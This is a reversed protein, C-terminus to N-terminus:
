NTTFVLQTKPQAARRGQFSFCCCELFSFFFWRQFSYLYCFFSRCNSQNMQKHCQLWETLLQQNTLTNLWSSSMFLSIGVCWLMEFVDQPRFTIELSRYFFFFFLIQRTKFLLSSANRSLQSSNWCGRAPMNQSCSWVLAPVSWLLLLLTAM